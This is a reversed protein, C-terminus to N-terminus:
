KSKNNIFDHIIKPLHLVTVYPLLGIAQEGRALNRLARIVIKRQDSKLFVPFTTLKVSVSYTSRFELNGATM